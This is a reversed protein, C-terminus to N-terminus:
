KKEKRGYVLAFSIIAGIDILPPVTLVLFLSTRKSPIVCTGIFMLALVFIYLGICIKSGVAYDPNERGKGFKVIMACIIFTLFYLAFMVRAIHDM